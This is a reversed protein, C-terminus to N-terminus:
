IWNENMGLLYGIINALIHGIVFVGVAFFFFVFEVRFVPLVFLFAGLIFDIQDFPFWSKGPAIKAQRKFFSKVSDGVMAGLSLLAGILIAYGVNSYNVVSHNRFFEINWLLYQLVGFFMGTFVAVVYGRYTKHDGTIRQGRYSRGGDIPKNLSELIHFHAALKPVMNALGAPALFYLSKLVLEFFM